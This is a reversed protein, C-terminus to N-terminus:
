LNYYFLVKEWTINGHLILENHALGIFGIIVQRILGILIIKFAKICM